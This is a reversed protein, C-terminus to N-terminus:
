VFDGKMVVSGSKVMIMKEQFEFAGTRSVKM